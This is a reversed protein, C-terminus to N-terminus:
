RLGGRLRELDVEAAIRGFAAPAGEAAARRLWSVGEDFRGMALHWSAMGYAVTGSPEGTEAGLVEAATCRGSFLLCLRHYAHNELVDADAPVASATEAAPEPLDLSWLCLCLWYRAAIEMDATTSADVCDAFADAAAGHEGRLRHALGLHYLVNTRLTSTPIGRANPLGDPEVEDPRGAIREAARGLDAVARDFDRVTIFRHGRHRLLHPEDPHLELGRTYVTIADEYCGLYALRRGFWVITDVDTAGDVLRARLRAAEAAHPDGSSPPEPITPWTPPPASCAALACFTLLLRRSM